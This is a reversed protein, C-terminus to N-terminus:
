FVFSSVKFQFLKPRVVLYNETKIQFQPKPWIEGKTAIVRPGPDRIYCDGISLSYIISFLTLVINMEIKRIGSSM